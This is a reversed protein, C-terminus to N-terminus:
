QSQWIVDGENLGSKIEVTDEGEIGTEVSKKEGKTLTVQGDVVAELPLTLVQRVEKLIIKADGNMGIRLTNLGRTDLTIKIPYVTAGSDSVISQFAITGVTGTFTVDEFADLTVEVKQGLSVKGIDSEDVELSFYLSAPDVITIGDTITVSSGIATTSISTIEGALPSILHADRTDRRAALWNDYAIDRATQAAVRDNKQSFTEDSSHDKVSDEVEKANADAAQYRYFAATEAAALDATDMGALSQGKKVTEGAAAKLYALKGTTPFRLTAMKEATIEGSAVIVQKVDQRTVTYTQVPQKAQQRSRWGWGGSVALLVAVVILNRRTLWRKM